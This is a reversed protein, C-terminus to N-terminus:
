SGVTSPLDFRLKVLCFLFSLCNFIRVAFLANDVILDSKEVDKVCCALFFVLIDKRTTAVLIYM